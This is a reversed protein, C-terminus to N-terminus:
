EEFLGKRGGYTKWRNHIWLYHEPYKRIISEMEKNMKETLRFIEAKESEYEGPWIPDSVFAEYNYRDEKRCNAVVVIPRHYLVALIAPVPTTLARRGFFDVAIGKKEAQDPLFGLSKGQRLAKKLIFFANRKPVIVQGSATRHRYILRELFPSDLPRVIVALPIGVFSSVHPFIEWNGFHPTVFICGGAQEHIRKAKRLLDDLGEVRQRLQELIAPNSAMFLYRIIEVGILFFTQCSQRAIQKIERENKEDGIAYRLNEIALYRRRSGLLYLLNGLCAASIELLKSTAPLCLLRQLVETMVKRPSSRNERKMVFEQPDNATQRIVSPDFLSYCITLAVSSNEDNRRSSLLPLSGGWAM